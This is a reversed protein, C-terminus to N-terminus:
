FFGMLSFNLFELIEFSMWIYPSDFVFKKIHFLKDNELSFHFYL